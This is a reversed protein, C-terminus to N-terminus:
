VLFKVRYFTLFDDSSLTQIEIGNYFLTATFCFDAASTTGVSICVGGDNIRQNVPTTNDVTECTGVGYVLMIALNDNSASESCAPGRNVTLCGRTQPM